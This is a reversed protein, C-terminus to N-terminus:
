VEKWYSGCAECRWGMHVVACSSYLNEGVKKPECSCPIISKITRVNCDPCQPGREIAEPPFVRPTVKKLIIPV